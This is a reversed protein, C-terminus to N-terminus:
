CVLGLIKPDSPYALLCPLISTEYTSATFGKTCSREPLLQMHSPGSYVGANALQQLLLQTGTSASTCHLKQEHYLKM